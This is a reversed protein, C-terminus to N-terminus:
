AEKLASCCMAQSKCRCHRMLAGWRSNIGDLFGMGDGEFDQPLDARGMDWRNRVMLWVRGGWDRLGVDGVEGWARERELLSAMLSGRGM